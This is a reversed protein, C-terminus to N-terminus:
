LAFIGYATLNTELAERAAEKEFNNNAAKISEFESMSM